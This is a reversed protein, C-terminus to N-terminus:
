CDHQEGTYMADINFKIGLDISTERLLDFDTKLYWQKFKKVLLECEAILDLTIDEDTDIIGLLKELPAYEASRGTKAAIIKWFELWGDLADSINYYGDTRNFIVPSNDIHAIHNSKLRTFCEDVKEFAYQMLFAKPLQYSKTAIPKAKSRRQARNM